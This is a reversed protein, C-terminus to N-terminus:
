GAAIMAVAVADDITMGCSTLEPSLRIGVLFNPGTCRRVEETIAVLFKTRGLQDGGWEDTRRNTKGGLFQAILYGHAGHLEVGDFGAKECRSALVHRLRASFCGARALM